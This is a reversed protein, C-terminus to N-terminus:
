TGNLRGGSGFEASSRRNARMLVPEMRSCEDSLAGDLHWIIFRLRVQWWLYRRPRFLEMPVIHRKTTLMIALTKATSIQLDNYVMWEDILNLATNLADELAETTKGTGIVAADEAFRILCIDRFRSASCSIAFFTGYCLDLSQS